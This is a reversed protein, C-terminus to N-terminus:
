RRHVLYTRASLREPKGEAGNINIVLVNPLTRRWQLLVLAAVTASTPRVLVDVIMLVLLPMSAECFAADIEHEDRSGIRFGFTQHAVEGALRTLVTVHALPLGCVTNTAAAVGINTVAVIM